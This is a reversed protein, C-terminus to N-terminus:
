IVVLLDSTIAENSQGRLLGSVNWKYKFVFSFSFSSTSPCSSSSPLVASDLQDNWIEICDKHKEGRLWEDSTVNEQIIWLNYTKRFFFFLLWKSIFSIIQRLNYIAMYLTYGDKECCKYIHISCSPRSRILACWILEFGSTDPLGGM